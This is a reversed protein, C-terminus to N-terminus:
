IMQAIADKFQDLAKSLLASPCALNIRLFGTGQEGYLSGENFAVKAEQYMFQKLADPDLGLKRCDVWLLYTGESVITDLMPLQEKIFSVAYEMNARVYDLLAELWEESENYAAITASPGFFSVGGVALTQVQKDFLRKIEPNSICTFSSHLGPMNFTKSPALCTITREAIAKSVTSFPIHKKDALILDCHIEDCIVRVDYQECLKGLRELEERDWVRGGPNHPSCLLLLKAGGRMLSELHEYDMEYRGNRLMLPNEAIIRGNNRIVDYFPNYVPSQLIVQDGPESLVQIAIGLAPVVGPTDTLWEPKITWNHRRSFWGTIADLYETTRITYGYMGLEARRKVTEIVAPPCQFDMDAVWLPLVDANGFLSEAQDWKLSLTGKREFQEDFQYTM